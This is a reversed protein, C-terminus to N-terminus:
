RCAKGEETRRIEHTLVSAKPTKRELKYFRQLLIIAAKFSCVNDFMAAIAIILCYKQQGGKVYTEHLQCGNYNANTYVPRILVVCCFLHISLM